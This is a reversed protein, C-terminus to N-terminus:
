QPVSYEINLEADIVVTHGEAVTEWRPAEPISGGALMVAKLHPYSLPRDDPGRGVNTYSGHRTVRLPLGRSRAVVIRGNTALCCHSAPPGSRDTVLRDLYAVTTDLARGVVAGSVRPDDMKGTDNLFALFLHFLHESETAGRINRRIFDPVSSLLGAKVEDFREVTGLHAFLWNRFRFPQTNETSQAGARRGGRHGIIFNSRLAEIKSVFDLEGEPTKPQKRLLPQGAQYYGVGWGHPAGKAEHLVARFPSLAPGLLGADNSLFAFCFSM